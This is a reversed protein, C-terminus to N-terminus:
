AGTATEERVVQLLGEINAIPAKLDHSATYIFNDLDTNTRTLQANARRLQGAVDLLEQEALKQEHIDLAAGVWHLLQGGADRVPVARDLHWRYQGTAAVCLRLAAQFPEGQAVAALWADLFPQQDDPHVYQQWGLGHGNAATTFQEWRPSLYTTQGQADAEWVVMPTAEMLRRLRQEDREAVRHAMVLGTVEVAVCAVATVHDHEDRLPQYTFTFYGPAGDGLRDLHIEQEQAVYPRGTQRVQALVAPLGQQALEPLAEAFPRGLLQEPARGLMASMSPNVVEVVFAPGRFVCIAVPAQAFLDALQRSHAEAEARAQELEWTRTQVRVELDQNVQHLEANLRQTQLRTFVADTVDYAFLIVGTIRGSADRTAQYLFNFYTDEVRGTFTRDYQVLMEHGVYPEGTQYVRDLLGPFAQNNLDPLAQRVPLGLVPRGGLLQAYAPNLFTFVHDPGALSAVAVPALELVQQLQQHSVPEPLSNRSVSDQEVSYKEAPM